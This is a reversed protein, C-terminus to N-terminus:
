GPMHSWKDNWVQFQDAPMPMSILYGQAVDCGLAALRDWVPQNEVGEAVVELELNHGLEITSRVIVASDHNAIMPMVFSQDIKLSDVPLQQLYSLSSYGTGFDDIFLAMDLRKLRMLAELGGVPDEMLASETLEFQILEPSIGWTSFLGQIRDLLRPDRLDQASLNISLARDLGAEHWAYSQSFAADLMWNTLPTILGAHEALKIFEVPSILGRVPHQWRVLAEAGCVCRNAIAVKPQCYLLLEDHEIAHRLDGMLALQRTNEQEQGGTYIAYGGRSPRAQHTAASARRLLADPDTGHGPFLAIGISVRADVMLNAVEVPEHLIVMLRQAARIASDAGAQPLLLGFEADGVRALAEDPKIAQILRQGLEQLLRDGSRYGLVKNIEHFRGVELHLLALAHHQQKASQIAEELKELLLTRNPLGTLADFHAMYRIREEAQKRELIEAQLRTNAEILEATRERVRDELSRQLNRLSLHTKIRALVEEAQLPRVIYDIGGSSFARLKDLGQDASSIFIVPIERTREDAKLRQCVQYGDMEPMFIDLLILDPLTTQVFRLAIAGSNAPHVTYGEATLMHTLLRLNAPTDDVALIRAKQADPKDATTM